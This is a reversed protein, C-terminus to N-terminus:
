GIPLHCVRSEAGVDSDQCAPAVPADGPCHTLPYWPSRRGAKPRLTLPPDPAFGVLHKHSIGSGPVPWMQGFVVTLSKLRETWRRIQYNAYDPEFYHWRDYTSRRSAAVRHTRYAAYELPGGNAGWSLTYGCPQRRPSMHTDAPQIGAPFGNQVACFPMTDRTLSTKWLPPKRNSTAPVRLDPFIRKKFPDGRRGLFAMKGM